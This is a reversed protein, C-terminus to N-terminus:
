NRQFCLLANITKHKKMCHKEYIKLSSYINKKQTAQNNKLYNKWLLNRTVNYFHHLMKRLNNILVQYSVLAIKDGKNITLTM